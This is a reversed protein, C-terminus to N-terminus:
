LPRLKHSALGTWLYGDGHWNLLFAGMGIPGQAGCDSYPEPIGWVIAFMAMDDAYEEVEDIWRYTDIEMMVRRMGDEWMGGGAGVSIRDSM